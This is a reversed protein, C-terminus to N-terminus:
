FRRVARVYNTYEKLSNMVGGDHFKKIKAHAFSDETSSWYSGTTTLTTGSNAVATTNIVTRNDYIETLESISPLYWDGYKISNETVQLNACIGAAYDDSDNGQEAIILMTNMEGAYIGDGRAETYDYVGNYWHISTSQDTKACVLGHQGSEDVWFVIGGYAFDGIAYTSRGIVGTVELDGNIRVLDNEFDGYILPTSSNTNEIYLKMNGTENAGANAGIFINAIGTSNQGANVGIATNDYGSLNSQLAQSGIATNYGGSTNASLVSYGIATNNSATNSWLADAGVAVNNFGSENTSLSLYGFALNHHGSINNNLASMGVATNYNSGDDNTGAGQGLFLSTNDSNGDSLSNISGMSGTVEFDGNIRVTDNEFNGYILPTDTDSNDIFLKNNISTQTKAAENGIFINGSGTVSQGAERGIATNNSTTTITQLANTGIVTNNSGETLGMLSSTGLATNNSGATVNKLSWVGVGTSFKNSGALNGAEAGMYLSNGDSLGDSLGDINTAGTNTDDAWSLNGSDDTKLLQGNTGASTPFRYANNIDFTGYIRLLNTSFDGYILPTETSSNDIYLKNSIATESFAANSGILINGSGTVNFGANTGMVTNEIGTLNSILAQTGFVANHTGTTNLKLAENGFATNAYGSESSNYANIGIATNRNDTGDDTLGAGNGLFLSYSDSIGDSLSNISTAGDGVVEWSIGNYFYFGPTNDTQYILLGNQASSVTILDRETKSMRPILIGKENSSVDLMASANAEDGNTNVAVQATLNASM